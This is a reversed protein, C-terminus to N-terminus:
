YAPHWWEFNSQPAFVSGGPGSLRIVGLDPLWTASFTAKPSDLDTLEGLLMRDVSRGSDRKAPLSIRHQQKLCLARLKREPRESTGQNSKAM